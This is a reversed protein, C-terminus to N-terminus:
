PRSSLKLDIRFYGVPRCVTKSPKGINKAYAVASSNPKALDAKKDNAAATSAAANPFLLPYSTTTSINTTVFSDYTTTDSDTAVPGTDTDDTRPEEATHAKTGTDPPAPAPQDTHAEVAPKLSRQLQHMLRLLNHRMSRMPVIKNRAVKKLM